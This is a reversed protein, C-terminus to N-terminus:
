FVPSYSHFRWSFVVQGLYLFVVFFIAASIALLVQVKYPLVAKFVGIGRKTRRM